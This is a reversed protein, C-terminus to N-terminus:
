GISIPKSGFEIFPANSPSCSTEINDCDLDWDVDMKEDNDEELDEEYEVTMYSYAADLLVSEFEEAMKRVQRTANTADGKFKALLLAVVRSCDFM